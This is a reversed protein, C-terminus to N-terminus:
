IMLGGGFDNVPDPVHIAASSGTSDTERNPRRMRQAIKM